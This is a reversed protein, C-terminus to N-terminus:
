FRKRRRFGALGILGIGVLLMTTPEPLPQTGGGGPSFATILRTWDGPNSATWNIDVSGGNYNASDNSELGRFSFDGYNIGPLGLFDSAAM